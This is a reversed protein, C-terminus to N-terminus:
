DFRAQEALTFGGLERRRQRRLIDNKDCRSLWHIQRTESARGAQAKQIESACGTDIKGAVGAQTQHTDGVGGAERLRM